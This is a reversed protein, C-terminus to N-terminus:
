QKLKPQTSITINAGVPPHWLLVMMSNNPCGDFTPTYKSLKSKYIICLSQTNYVHYSQIKKQM